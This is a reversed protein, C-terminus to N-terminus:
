GLPYNKWSFFTEVSWLNTTNEWFFMIGFLINGNLINKENFVNWIYVSGVFVSEFM